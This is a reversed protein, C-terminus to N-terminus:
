SRLPARVRRRRCAAAAGALLVLALAGAAGPRGAGYACGTTVFCRTNEGGKLGCTGATGADPNRGNCGGSACEGHLNCTAGAPRKAECRKTGAHCHLGKGCPAAACPEGEGVFSRCIGETSESLGVCQGGVCSEHAACAAGPQTKPTIFSDCGDLAENRKHAECTAAAFATLCRRAVAPHYSLRGREQEKGMIAAWFGLSKSSKTGCQARGGKYDMHEILEMEACCEYVKDCITQSAEEGFGGLAVEDSKGCGGSVLALPVLVLSWSTRETM